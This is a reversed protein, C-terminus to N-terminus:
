RAPPPDQPTYIPAYTAAPEYLFEKAPLLGLSAALVKGQEPLENKARKWNWLEIPEREPAAEIRLVRDGGVTLRAQGVVDLSQIQMAEFMLAKWTFLGGMARRAWSMEYRTQGCGLSLVKIQERQIDFCAL